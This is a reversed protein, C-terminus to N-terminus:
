GQRVTAAEAVTGVAWQHNRLRGLFTSDSPRTAIEGPTWLGPEFGHEIAYPLRLEKQMPGDRFLGDEQIPRWNRYVLAWRPAPTQDRGFGLADRTLNAVTHCRDFDALASTLVGWSGRHERHRSLEEVAAPGRLDWVNKPFRPLAAVELVAAEAKRKVAGFIAPGAAVLALDIRSEITRCADRILLGAVSQGGLAPDPSWPVEAAYAVVVEDLDAGPDQALRNVAQRRALTGLRQREYARKTLDRSREAAERARALLENPLELDAFTREFWALRASPSMARIGELVPDAGPSLRPRDPALEAKVDAVTTNSSGADPTWADANNPNNWM